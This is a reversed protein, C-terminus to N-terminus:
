RLKQIDAQPTPLEDDSGWSQLWKSVAGHSAFVGRDADSVAEDIAAIQWEQRSLYEDLAESALFSRSRKTSASLQDLREKMSDTVRLSIVNQSM